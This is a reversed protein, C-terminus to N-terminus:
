LYGLKGIERKVGERLGVLDPFESELGRIIQKSHERKSYLLRDELHQIEQSVAHHSEYLSLSLFEEAYERLRLIRTELTARESAQMQSQHSSPRPNTSISHNNNMKHRVPNEARDDKCPTSPITTADQNSPDPDISCDNQQSPYETAKNTVEAAEIVNAFTTMKESPELNNPCAPSIAGRSPQWFSPSKLPPLSVSDDRPSPMQTIYDIGYLVTDPTSGFNLHRQVGTNQISEPARLLPSFRASKPDATLRARKGGGQGEPSFDSDPTLFATEPTADM